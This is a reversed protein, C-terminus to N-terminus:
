IPTFSLIECSFFFVSQPNELIYPQPFYEPRLLFLLLTQFSM